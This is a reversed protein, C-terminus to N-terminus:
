IHWVRFHLIAYRMVRLLSCQAPRNRVVRQEAVQLAHVGAERGCGKDEM